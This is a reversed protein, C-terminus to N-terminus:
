LPKKFILLKYNVEEARKGFLAAFCGPKQYSTVTDSMDLEWGGKAADQIIKEYATVAAGHSDTGTKGTFISRPVPICKYTFEAM